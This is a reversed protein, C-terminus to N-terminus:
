NAVKVITFQAAPTSLSTSATGQARIVSGAPLYGCWSICVSNNGGSSYEIGLLESANTLSNPATTLQTCNLTVGQYSLAGAAGSFSVSYVGATNITFTAGLTASDAYTIDSGQNTVTNTFRHIATSSSGQGNGTNLRVM